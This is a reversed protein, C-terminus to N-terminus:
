SSASDTQKALDRPDVRHVGPVRDFHPDYSLLAPVGQRKMEVALLADGLNINKDACLGLAEWVASDVVIEPQGLFEILERVADQRRVKYTRELTYIIEAVTHASLRLHWGRERALDFVRVAAEAMDEPESTFVRLVVNADLYWEGTEPPTAM